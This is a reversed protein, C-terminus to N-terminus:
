GRGPIKKIFQKAFTQNQKYLPALTSLSGSSLTRTDPDLYTNKHPSFWSGCHFAIIDGTAINKADYKIFGRAPNGKVSPGFMFELNSSDPQGNGHGIFVSTIKDHLSKYKNLLDAVKEEGEVLNNYAFYGYKDGPKKQWTPKFIDNADVVYIDEALIGDEKELATIIANKTEQNLENEIQYSSMGGQMTEMAAFPHNPNKEMYDLTYHKSIGILIIVGRREKKPINKKVTLEISEKQKVTADPNYTQFVCGVSLVILTCVSFLLKSSFRSASITGLAGKKPADKTLTAYISSFNEDLENQNKILAQFSTFDRDELAYLQEQINKIIKHEIINKLYSVQSFNSKIKKKLSSLVLKNSENMKADIKKLLQDKDEFISLARKACPLEVHTIFSKVEKAVPEIAKKKSSTSMRSKNALSLFLKAEVMNPYKNFLKQFKEFERVYKKEFYSTFNMNKDLAVTKLERLVKNALVQEDANLKRSTSVDKKLIKKYKENIIAVSELIENNSSKTLKGLEGILDYEYIENDLYISFMLDLEKRVMILFSVFENRLEGIASDSFISSDAFKELKVFFSDYFDQEEADLRKLQKSKRINKKIISTNSLYIHKWFSKKIKKGHLLRSENKKEKVILKQADEFAGNLTNFLDDNSDAILYLHKKVLLHVFDSLNKVKKYLLKQESRKVNEIADLLNSIIKKFIAIRDYKKHSIEKLLSDIEEVDKLVHKENIQILQALTHIVVSAHKYRHNM